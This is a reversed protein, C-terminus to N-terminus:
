PCGRRYAMRMLDLAVPSPETLEWPEAGYGPFGHAFSQPAGQYEDLFRIALHKPDDCGLCPYSVEVDRSGSLRAVAVGPQHILKGLPKRRM